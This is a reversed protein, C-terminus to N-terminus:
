SPAYLHAAPAPKVAVVKAFQTPHSAPLVDAHAKPAESAATMGAMKHAAMANDMTHSLHSDASMEPARAASIPDFVESALQKDGEVIIAGAAGHHLRFISHDVLLFTGPVRPTFEVVTSGGAPILTTQLGHAPPSILDGERYVNDFIQGIVHFSSVLNPGANGVYIRVPQNLPVHPANAKLLSGVAGNFVVYQPDM